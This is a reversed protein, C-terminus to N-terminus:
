RKSSLKQPYFGDIDRGQSVRGAFWDNQMAALTGGHGFGPIEVVAVTTTVTVAVRPCCSCGGRTVVSVSVSILLVVMVDVMWTVVADVIVEDTVICAGREMEITVVVSYLSIGGQSIVVVSVVGTLTVVVSVFVASLVTEVVM